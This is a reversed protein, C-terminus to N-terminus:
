QDSKQQDLEWRWRTLAPWLEIGPRSHRSEIPMGDDLAVGVDFDLLTNRDVGFLISDQERSLLYIDGRFEQILKRMEAQHWSQDEPSTFNNRLSLFRV